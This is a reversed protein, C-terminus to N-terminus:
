RRRAGGPRRRRRGGKNRAFTRLAYRVDGHLVGYGHQAGPSVPELILLDLTGALLEAQPAM